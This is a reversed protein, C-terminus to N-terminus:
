VPNKKQTIPEFCISIQTGQGSKSDFSFRMGNEVARSKMNQLGYSYEGNEKPKFGIGNDSFQICIEKENLSVHCLIQTCQAHKIANNLAEKLIRYIHLTQAPSLSVEPFSHPLDWKINAAQLIAKSNESLRTFLQALNSETQHIAWITERLSIMANRIKDAMTQLSEKFQVNPESYAKIDLESAIWTLDAGLNDHLDRSIRLREENLENETQLQQNKRKQKFYSYFVLLLALLFLISGVSWILLHNRKTLQVNAELLLKDKALTESKHREVEYKASYKQILSKTDFEKLRDSGESYKELYDLAISFNNRKKYWEYLDFYLLVVQERLKNKLALDLAMKFYKLSKEAKNLDEYCYALNKLSNCIGVEDGLEEYIALAKEYLDMGLNHKGTARCLVGYAEYYRARDNEHAEVDMYHKVDLFYKESESYRGLKRNLIGLNTKALVAGRFDGYGEALMQSKSYWYFAEKYLKNKEFLAGLNNSLQILRSTDGMKEYIFGAKSNAVISQKYDGLEYYAQALKALNSAALLVKGRGIRIKYAAKNLIIVSDFDGTVLYPMSWDNYAQAILLSDGLKCSELFALNGYHIGLSPNDYMLQYSLEGLSFVRDKGTQREVVNLLSDLVPNASSISSFTNFHISLFLLFLIPKIKM